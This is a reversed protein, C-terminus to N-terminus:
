GPYTCSDHLWIDASIEVTPTASYTFINTPDTSSFDIPLLKLGNKTHLSKWSSFLISTSVLSALLSPYKSLVLLYVGLSELPLFYKFLLDKLNSNLTVIDQEKWRYILM